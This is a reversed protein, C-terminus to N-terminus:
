FCQSAYYHYIETSSPDLGPSAWFGSLGRLRQGRLVRFLQGSIEAGSPVRPEWSYALGRPVWAGPMQHLAPDLVKPGLSYYLPHAARVRTLAKLREQFLNSSAVLTKLDESQDGLQKWGWGHLLFVSPEFVLDPRKQNVFKEYWIPMVYHDGDALLLGGRPIAKMVNIGFDEALTYRSKDELRFSHALWGLSSLVLFLVIGNRWKPGMGAQLHILGVYGGLTTLGALPLLYAHILYINQQEHILWVGLFVPVFFSLLAAALKRDSKWLFYIGALGLLGFGPLWYFFEVRAMERGSDLYFSFPQVWTEVDSVLRRSVVWYFLRLNIPYGWSPSCDLRARLPLYLYTSLGLVVATLLFVLKPGKLGERRQFLWFGIFPIWLVQTQWHNGLGVAWLFIVLFLIKLSKGKGEFVRLWILAAALCLTLAYVCGKATLSQAFVSRCSIFLLGMLPLLVAEPEGASRAWGRPFPIRRCTDLIFALSAFVLFQSFLNLRFAATGVPLWGFIHGLLNFLPYGPPHPLGLGHASAAMEGSDDSMLGPNQALLVVEWLALFFLAWLWHFSAPFAKIKKRTMSAM